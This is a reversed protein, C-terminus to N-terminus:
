RGAAGLDEIRGPPSQAAIFQAVGLGLKDRFLRDSEVLIREHEAQLRHNPETMRQLSRSSKRVSALATMLEQRDAESVEADLGADAISSDLASRALKRWRRPFRPGPSSSASHSPPPALHAQREERASDPAARSSPPATTVGTTAENSKSTTVEDSKRLDHPSLWYLAVAAALAAAAILTVRDKM